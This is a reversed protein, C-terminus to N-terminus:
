QRKLIDINAQLDSGIIMDYAQIFKTVIDNYYKPDTKMFNSVSTTTHNLLANKYADAVITVIDKIASKLKKDIDDGHYNSIFRGYVFPITELSKPASALETKKIDGNVIRYCAGLLAVITQKGNKLVEMSEPPLGEEKLTSEIAVYRENLDILDLIFAKKNPDKEYNVKFLKDYVNQSEFIVRKGSRATGPRQFAFSLILQGLEDNKLKYSFSGKPKYGRKIELYVKNQELWRALRVMEPANSKLDRAYIPKQSNSAEAIKTFFEAADDDHLTEVIKCPIYFERTNTGKYTGILTTTQGGNVISFNQLKVTDGDVEFDECAIIIGNNLFWFNERDSDLTRKIGNDVLNNRIYRRINLDFLGLGAYKNYLQIISTSLVNCMIGRSDKSEYKLYNNPTDIKIKEFSVTSLSEQVSQIEKEISDLTYIRVADAPFDHQTNKIKNEAGNVDVPATTFLDFEVNDQFDDPLQDMANQLAKRIRDNYIGTNARKFNIWTSYMKGFETIIQDFSLNSTYKSQCLIVKAQEDDYYLFDVGGDNAGDTVFDFQDKYDVDFVYKLLMHSFARDDTIVQGTITKIEEKTFDVQSTTIESM